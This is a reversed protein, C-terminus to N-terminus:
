KTEEKRRVESRAPETQTNSSKKWFILDSISSLKKRLVVGAGNKELVGEIINDYDKGHFLHVYRTSSNDLRWELSVDDIFSGFGTQKNVTENDSVRGGIVVSLRDSFFRKSFKFTYDYGTLDNSYTQQDMGLSVDVISGLARGAINNIQSQLFSSLANDATIASSNSDAVYMGTALLAVALKNKEEDSYNSLEESIVGDSPASITFALGMDNLTNTIDLGVDFEVSRPSGSENSVQAKTREVASLNLTPNLMDGTFEVYSGNQIKFTKLPIIPLTYKMEGESATLRGQTNMVGEPTYNLIVQGGGRVNVYSQRDASFEVRFKAGEEVNLTLRMDIGMISAIEKAKTTDAPHEFNVFTVIDDLRDGQSITADNLIYTLNTNPHVNLYGRVTIDDTNGTVRAFFDGWGDGFMVSKSTRKSDIFKINRGAFQLSLLIKDMNSFDVYGDLTLPNEGAGYMKFKDFTIKSDAVRLTDEDLRLKVSYYPSAVTVGVPKAYGNFALKDTPGNVDMEGALTGDLDSILDPVFPSIMKMPIDHLQLTANLNGEGRSDYRGVLNAVDTGDYSIDGEVTHISLGEDEPEYTFMSGVNGVRTGEYVFDGIDLMGDVSFKGGNVQYAADINFNGNMNPIFPIVTCLEGLNLNKVEALARQEGEYDLATLAIESKSDLGELKVYGIIPHNKDRYFDFYNDDNISFKRYGIIPQEPYLTMHWVTDQTLIHAGLDIGQEGKRNYFQLHVDGDSLGYRGDIKAYFAPFLPQDDCKVGANFAIGLSDQHVDFYATDIRITDYQLSYIHGNGVLGAEPSAEINAVFEDYNIGTAQLISAVPNRNGATAHITALPMYQKLDNIDYTGIRKQKKAAADMKDWQKLLANVSNPSQFDFKLDGTILNAVTSKNNTEAYLDFDATKIHDQNMLIDFGNMHSDIRHINDLNSYVDFSGSTSVTLISDSFGMAKIDAYPLEIDFSGDLVGKRLMGAFCLDTHLQPNDCKLNLDMHSRNLAVDAKITSLDVKGFNGKKIDAEAVINTKSDYPDFGTGKAHVLGTINTPAGVDAYHNVNFNRLDLDVDYAGSGIDYSGGVVADGGVLKADMDTTILDGRKRVKGNLKGLGQIDTYLDNFQLDKLNGILNLNLPTNSGSPIFEAVLDRVADLKSGEELYRDVYRTIKEVDSRNMNSSLELQMVGPNVDEWTNLPMNMKINLTSLTPLPSPNPLNPLNSPNSTLTDATTIALNPIILTTSDMLVQGIVDQFMIGCKEKGSLHKIDVMLNKPSSYRISDSDFCVSTMDANNDYRVNSDTLHLNRVTYERNELDVLATLTAKDFYSDLITPIVKQKRLDTISYGKKQPLSLAFKVKDFAIDKFDLKLKTPKSETTDPPVTDPLALLIDADKLNLKNVTVYKNKLDVGHTYAKLEGIHGKILVADILERTNVDANRLQIDDVNLQGDLLPRWQVSLQLEEANLVTDGEQVALMGGMSLDLPFKLRVNEVTVEMGMEESLYDAAKDVAWKQVPPLYIAIFLLAFLVIPTLVVWM